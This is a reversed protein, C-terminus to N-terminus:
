WPWRYRITPSASRLRKKGGGTIIDPVSANKPLIITLAGPFFEEALRKAAPTFDTVIEEIQKL